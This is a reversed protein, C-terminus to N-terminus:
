STATLLLPPFVLAEVEQSHLLSRLTLLIIIFDCLGIGFADM